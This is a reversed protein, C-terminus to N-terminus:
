VCRALENRNRLHTQVAPAFGAETLVCRLISLGSETDRKVTSISIGLLDAAEQAGLGALLTAGVVSRTRDPMQRLGEMLVSGFLADAVSRARYRRLGDTTAVECFGGEETQSRWERHIIEHIWPWRLVGSECVAEDEFEVPELARKFYGRQYTRCEGRGAIWRWGVTQADLKGIQVCGLVHLAKLAGLGEHRNAIGADLLLDPTGILSGRYYQLLDRLRRFPLLGPLGSDRSDGRGKEWLLAKRTGRSAHILGLVVAMKLAGRATHPDGAFGSEQSLDATSAREKKSRALSILSSVKRLSTCSIENVFRRRKNV